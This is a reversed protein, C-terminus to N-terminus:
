KFLKPWLLAFDGHCHGKLTFYLLTIKKIDIVRPTLAQAIEWALPEHYLAQCYDLNFQLKSINTKSSLPFGYYGSFFRESFPRSGVIFEIWVHNDYWTQSDFRPWM